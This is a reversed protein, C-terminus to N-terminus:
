KKTTRSIHARKKGLAQAKEVGKFTPLLPTPIAEETLDIYRGRNMFSNTIEPNADIFVGPHGAQKSCLDLYSQEPDAMSKPNDIFKYNNKALRKTTLKNYYLSNSMELDKFIMSDDSRGNNIVLYERINASAIDYYWDVFMDIIPKPLQSEVRIFNYILKLNSLNNEVIGEYKFIFKWFSPSKVLSPERHYKNFLTRIKVSNGQCKYVELCQDVIIPISDENLFKAFLYLLADLLQCAGCKRSAEKNESKMRKEENRKDFYNDLLLEMAELFKEKDLLMKWIHIIERTMELYPSKFYQKSTGSLLKMWDFLYEVASDIDNQKLLFYAYLKRVKCQNLPIFKANARIYIERELECKKEDPIGLGDIFKIYKLWLDEDFCNPILAREFLSCILAFRNEDNDVQYILIERDIYEVWTTREEEIGKRDFSFDQHLLLQEYEWNSSVKAQTSAFITAFYDDIIQHKEILSLDETKLKGFKEVYDNLKAEDILEHIDFNKNIESFQSYYQAYQYLPINAVKLYLSLVEKSNPQTETEFEIAKDWIPHSVFNYANYRLAETYTLRFQESDACQTSKLATLYDTWLSVSHPFSEVAMRLIEISAELGDMKYEVVLWKKWIEELYPFRTLLTKYTNHIKTKVEDSLTTKTTDDQSINDSIVKDITSFLQNWTDIDNPSRQLKQGLLGAFDNNSTTVSELETELDSPLHQLTTM